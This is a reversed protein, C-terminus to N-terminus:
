SQLKYKKRQCLKRLQEKFKTDFFGYIFPNIIHNLLILKGLYFLVIRETKTFSSSIDDVTITDAVNNRISDEVDNQVEITHAQDESVDSTEFMVNKHVNPIRITIATGKQKNSNCPIETDDIEMNLKCSVNSMETESTVKSSKDTRFSYLLKVKKLVPVYMCITIILNVAIILFLLYPYMIKSISQKDSYNCVEMTLSRNMYTVNVTFLGATALLPASYVLSVLCAVGFLVRKWFRTMKPGFPKCVLYYRQISIVLITHASIGPICIQLFSSVKCFVDSRHISKVNFIFCFFFTLCGLLDVIGLLPIFYREGREKIRFFYFFIIASNGIVGIVTGIINLITSSLVMDSYSNRDTNNEM